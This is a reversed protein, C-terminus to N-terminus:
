PLNNFWWWWSFNFHKCNNNKNQKATEFEHLLVKHRPFDHDDKKRFVRCADSGDRWLCKKCYVKNSVKNPLSITEGQYTDEQSRNLAKKIIEFLWQGNVPKSFKVEFHNVLANATDKLASVEFTIKSM